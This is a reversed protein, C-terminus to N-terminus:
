LKVEEVRGITWIKHFTKVYREGGVVRVVTGGIQPRSMRAGALRYCFPVKLQFGATTAVVCAGKKTQIRVETNRHRHSRILADPPEDGWRGAEVYAESLERSLASTEYAMSGSFGITHSVHVLAHGLRAYMEWRSRRGDEDPIAGLEKALTEEDNASVGAHAETGRIHYYRGGCKEVIPALIRNAIALQDAMNHSIQTVTGHHNGDIADGNCVVAYPENHCFEPVWVRWFEEWMSWVTQQYKSPYYEGGDDLPIPGPPCLGLRCGAHLDSIIVLNNIPGLGGHKEAKKPSLSTSKRHNPM